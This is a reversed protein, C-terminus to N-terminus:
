GIVKKVFGRLTANNNLTSDIQEKATQITTFVMPNSPLVSAHLDAPVHFNGLKPPRAGMIVPPPTIRFRNPINIPVLGPDQRNKFWGLHKGPNLNGLISRSVSSPAAKSTGTGILGMVKVPNPPFGGTWPSFDGKLPPFEPHKVGEGSYASRKTLGAM